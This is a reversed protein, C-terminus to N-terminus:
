AFPIKGGWGPTPPDQLQWDFNERRAMSWTRAAFALWRSKDSLQEHRMPMMFYHPPPPVPHNWRSANTAAPATPRPRRIPPPVDALLRRAEDENWVGATSADIEDTACEWAAATPADDIPDTACQRYYRTWFASLTHADSWATATM